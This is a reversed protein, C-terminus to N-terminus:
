SNSEYTWNLAGAFCNEKSMLDMALRASGLSHQDGTTTPLFTEAVNPLVPESRVRETVADM